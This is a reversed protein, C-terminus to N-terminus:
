EGAASGAPARPDNVGFLVLGGGLSSAGEAASLTEGGVLISEAHGWPTVDRFTYGSGALKNRVDPTLAEPELDVRDPLFQHHLRPADVAAELTMGHDVVNIIVEATITIIRSGGPSGTVMALHGDRAVITPSMSSLPTKGPAIANATGQVLGFMNATGPKATFDDMENNMLIGTDGAVRHAGFWGNLTYTVSVANGAADVVSFQTTQQGETSAPAFPLSASPTAADPLITARLAAAYSKDLLHSLPNVVFDPDGLEQNRDRYARRMAEILVHSEAASHFGMAKLDYGELINLIECLTVGGSSPPPASIVQYARYMCSIPTMERVRYHAFDDLTILGHGLQSAAAVAQALPGQVFSAAGDSDIRELSRALQPQVLRDGAKLAQGDRTFIARAGPDKALGPTEAAFLVADGDTLVFGDRALREAPALVTHRGLRGYRQSAAELGAVTGPVGVALWSDTSLGPIVHGDPDLFMTRTAAIPAKERFDLFTARGDAFRITMFGGGGLNGAAPYVVALAYGVAVAADVANGGSRLVELGADSALHQASVVM